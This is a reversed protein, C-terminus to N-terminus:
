TKIQIQNIGYVSSTSSISSSTYKYSDEFLLNWRLERQNFIHISTNKSAGKSM